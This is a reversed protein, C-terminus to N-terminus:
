TYGQDMAWELVTSDGCTRVLEEIVGVERRCCGQETVYELCEKGGPKHINLAAHYGLYYGSEMEEQRWTEYDNVSFYWKVESLNGREVSSLLAMFWHYTTIVRSLSDKSSDKSKWISAWEVIGEDSITRMVDEMDECIDSEVPYIDYLWEVAERDLGETEIKRLTHLALMRWAFPDNDVAEKMCSLSGAANEISTATRGQRHGGVHKSLIGMFLHSEGLYNQVNDRVFPIDM